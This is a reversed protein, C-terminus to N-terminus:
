TMDNIDGTHAVLKWRTLNSHQMPADTVENPSWVDRDRSESLEQTQAPHLHVLRLPRWVDHFSSLVEIVYARETDKLM